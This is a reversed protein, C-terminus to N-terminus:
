NNKNYTWLVRPQICKIFYPIEKDPYVYEFALTAGCKNMDFYCYDLKNCKNLNSKHHDLVYFKKSINKIHEVNETVIDVMIINKGEQTSYILEINNLIKECEYKFIYGATTDDQYGKHYIVVDLETLSIDRIMTKKVM